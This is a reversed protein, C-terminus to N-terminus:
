CVKYGNQTKPNIYMRIMGDEEKDIKISIIMKSTNKGLNGKSLTAKRKAKQADENLAVGIDFTGPTTKHSYYNKIFSTCKHM